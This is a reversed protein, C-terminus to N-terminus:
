PCKRHPREKHPLETPLQTARGSVAAVTFEFVGAQRANFCRLWDRNVRPPSERKLTGKGARGCFKPADVGEGAQLFEILAEMLREATLKNMVVGIPGTDTDLELLGLLRDRSLLTVDTALLKNYGTASVKRTM